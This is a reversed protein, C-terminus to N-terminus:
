EKKSMPSESLINIQKGGCAGLAFFIILPLFIAIVLGAVGLILQTLDEQKHFFLSCRKLIGDTQAPFVVGLIGGIAMLIVSWGSFFVFSFFCSLLFALCFFVEFRHKKAFSELEKVSVGEKYKKENM